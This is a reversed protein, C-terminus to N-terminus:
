YTTCLGNKLKIIVKLRKSIGNKKETLWIEDPRLLEQQNILKTTHTTFILQGKAQQSGYFQLLSFILNPHIGKKKAVFKIEDRTLKNSSLRCFNKRFENIECFDGM